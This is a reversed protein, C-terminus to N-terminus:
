FRGKTERLRYFYQVQGLLEKIFPLDKNYLEKPHIEKSIEDQTMLLNGVRKLPTRGSILNELGASDAQFDYCSKLGQETVYIRYGKIEGNYILAFMEAYDIM